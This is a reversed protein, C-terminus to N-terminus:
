TSGFNSNGMQALQSFDINTNSEDNIYDNVTQDYQGADGVERDTTIKATQVKDAPLNTGNYQGWVQTADQNGAENGGATGM